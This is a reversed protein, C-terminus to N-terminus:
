IWFVVLNYFAVVFILGRTRCHYEAQRAPPREQFQSLFTRDGCSLTGALPRPSESLANRVSLAVSFIGGRRLYPHFPATLACRPHLSGDPLAFGVHLLVLYPLLLQGSRKVGPYTALAPCYHGALIFSQWGRPYLFRSVTRCALKLLCLQVVLTECKNRALCFNGSDYRGGVCLDMGLSKTESFNESVQGPLPHGSNRKAGLVGFPEAASAQTAVFWSNPVTFSFKESGFACGRQLVPM